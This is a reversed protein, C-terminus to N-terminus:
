IGLCRRRDEAPVGLAQFIDEMVGLPMLEPHQLYKVFTASGGVKTRKRLEEQTMGGRISRYKKITGKFEQTNM